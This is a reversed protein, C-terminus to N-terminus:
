QKVQKQKKKKRWKFLALLVILALVLGIALLFPWVRRSKILAPLESKQDFYDDPVETRRGHVLLRHTNVGYPTCTVLTALDDGDVIQLADMEYPLVVQSGIVEYAITQNLTRIGFIDGIQLQDIEDFGRMNSMGTHASLVTHTSAGGIPLSTAELHGVGAMLVTEETSHYIPMRLSLAPILISGFARDGEEASLQKEYPWIEDLPIETPLGALQNNYAVAQEKLESKTEEPVAADQVEMQEIIQKRRWADYAESAPYYGIVGLGILIGLWPILKQFWGKKRKAKPKPKEPKKSKEPKAEASENVPEAKAQSNTERKTEEAINQSATDWQGNKPSTGNKRDTRKM